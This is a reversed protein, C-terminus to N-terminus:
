FFTALIRMSRSLIRPQRIDLEQAREIEGCRSFFRHPSSMKQFKLFIKLRREANPCLSSQFDKGKIAYIARDFGTAAFNLEKSVVRISITAFNYIKGSTCYVDASYLGARTSILNSDPYVQGDQIKLFPMAPAESKYNRFNSLFSISLNSQIKALPMIRLDSFVTIMQPEILCRLDKNRAGVPILIVKAPVSGVRPFIEESNKLLGTFSLKGFSSLSYRKNFSDLEIKKGNNRGEADFSKLTFKNRGKEVPIVSPHIFSTGLRQDSISVTINRQSCVNLSRWLCARILIKRKCELKRNGDDFRKAMLKKGSIFFSNTSYRVYEEWLIEARTSIEDGSLDIEGVLFSKKTQYHVAAALSKTRIEPATEKCYSLNIKINERLQIQENEGVSLFVRVGISEYTSYKVLKKTWIWGNRADIEFKSNREVFKFQRVFNPANKVEIQGVVQQKQFCTEVSFYTNVVSPALPILTPSINLM